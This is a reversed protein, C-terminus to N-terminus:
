QLLPKVAHAFERLREEFLNQSIENYIPDIANKLTAVCNLFLTRNMPNKVKEILIEIIKDFAPPLILCILLMPRSLTWIDFDNLINDFCSWLIQEINGLCIQLINDMGYIKKNRLLYIEYFFAQLFHSCNLIITPNKMKMGKLVLQIIQIIQQENFIKINSSCILALSDIFMYVSHVIKDYAELAPYPILLALQLISNLMTIISNDNYIDFISFNVFNCKFCSSISKLCLCLPKYCEIYPNKYERNPMQLYRECLSSTAMTIGKFIIMCNPSEIPFTEQFNKNSVIDILLRLLPTVIYMEDFFIMLLPQLLPLIHIIIFDYLGMATTDSNSAALSIARLDVFLTYIITKNFSNAQENNNQKMEIFTKIDNIQPLFVKLFTPLHKILRCNFLLNGLAKYLQFHIKKMQKITGSFNALLMVHNQTILQNIFDYKFLQYNFLSSTTITTLLELCKTIIVISEQWQFLITQVMDLYFNLFDETTLVVENTMFNTVYGKTIHTTRFVNMFNICAKQLRFDGSREMDKIQKIEPNNKVYDNYNKVFPFIEKSMTADLVMTNQDTATMFKAKLVCVVFEILWAIRSARLNLEIRSQQTKQQNALQAFAAMEQKLLGIICNHFHEYLYRGIPGFMDYIVQMVDDNMLPDESPDELLYYNSCDLSMKIFGEMVMKLIDNWENMKDQIRYTALTQRMWFNMLNNICVNNRTTFVKLTFQLITQLFQTSTQQASLQTLKFKMIMRCFSTLNDQNNLGIENTIVDQIFKLIINISITKDMMGEIRTKRLSVLTFLLELVSTSTKTNCYNVYILCIKNYLDADEICMLIQPPLHIWSPDDEEYSWNHCLYISASIAEVCIKFLEMNEENISSQKLIMVMLKILEAIVDTKISMIQHKELNMKSFLGHANDFIYFMLQMAVMINQQNNTQLLQQVTSVIQQYNQQNKWSYVVLIAFINLCGRSIFAPCNKTTITKLLVTQIQVSINLFADTQQNVSKNLLSIIFQQAYINDTSQLIQLYYNVQSIDTIETPLIQMLEQRRQNNQTTYQEQCLLIFQQPDM